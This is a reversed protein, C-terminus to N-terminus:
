FKWSPAVNRLAKNWSRRTVVFCQHTSTHLEVTDDVAYHIAFDVITPDLKMKNGSEAGVLTLVHADMEPLDHLSLRTTM